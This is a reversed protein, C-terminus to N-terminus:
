FPRHRNSSTLTKHVLWDSLKDPFYYAMLQFVFKGKHVIYRTKPRKAVLCKAILKSVSEVPLANREANEIIKDAKQLVEYYDSDKFEDMKNLNKKWIETKIPGPEIAIVKIGYKRLERRYIDTMSELAHKSISYAGNFPSNFLGSVSSINIIRGPPKSSNPEAGLFPLFLNTIRRISKVNIDLQKEFQEESLHELPGPIAIGANNILGALTECQEFVVKSAKIVEDHNQVDFLLPTFRDPYIKSLHDSDAQNRVSGFVHYGKAHLIDLSARGIGSSVGTIVVNKVM